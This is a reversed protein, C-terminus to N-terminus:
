RFIKADWMWCEVVIHLKLTWIFINVDCNFMKNAELRVHETSVIKDVKSHSIIKLLKIMIDIGYTNSPLRKYEKKKKKMEEIRVNEDTDSCKDMNIISVVILRPRFYCILENVFLIIKNNFQFRM